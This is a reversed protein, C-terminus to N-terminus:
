EWIEFGAEAFHVDFTFARRIHRKRMLVFSSCDTFSIQPNGIKEMIALAAIEDHADPRFIILAKSSYIERIARVSFACGARRALFTALEDLVFNSTAVAEKSKELRQWAAVAKNHYPDRSLRRALFPGTDIFIV